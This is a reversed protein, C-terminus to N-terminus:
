WVAYANRIGEKMDDIFEEIISVARLNNFLYIQEDNFNEEDEWGYFADAEDDYITYSVGSDFVDFSVSISCNSIRYLGDVKECGKFFKNEFVKMTNYTDDIGIEEKRDEILRKFTTM